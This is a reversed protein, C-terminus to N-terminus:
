RSARWDVRGSKVKYKRPSVKELFYLLGKRGPLKERYVPESESGLTDVKQWGSNILFSTSVVFNDFYHTSNNSM